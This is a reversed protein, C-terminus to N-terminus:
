DCSLQFGKLIANLMKHSHQGRSKVDEMETDGCSSCSGLRPVEKPSLMHYFYFPDSNDDYAAAPLSGHSGHFLLSGQGGWGGM